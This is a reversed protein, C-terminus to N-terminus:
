VGEVGEGWYRRVLLEVVEPHTGFPATVRPASGCASAATAALAATKRSFVGEALLYQAVFVPGTLEALVQDLKPAGQAIVGLRASTGLLAELQRLTTTNEAQAVPDNSGAVALVVQASPDWGAERLRSAMLGALAPDPGLAATLRVDGRGSSRIQNPLDVRVHYGSALFAPVIVVPGAIDALASEPKPDLVDVFALRVLVDPLRAAVAGRLAELMAVGSELRTGHAALLLAPTVTV